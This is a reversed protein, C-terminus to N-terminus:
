KILTQKTICSLDWICGSSCDLSSYFINICDECWMIENKIKWYNQFEIGKYDKSVQNWDIYNIFALSESVELKYKSQLNELDELSKIILIEDEKIELEINYKKIWNPINGKCWDIWEKDISYWLGRPKLSFTDTKSYKQNLNLKKISINTSRMIKSITLLYDVEEKSLTNNIM